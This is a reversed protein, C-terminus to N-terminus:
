LIMRLNDMLAVVRSAQINCFSHVINLELLFDIKLSKFFFMKTKSFISAYEMQMINVINQVSKWVGGAILWNLTNRWAIRDNCM